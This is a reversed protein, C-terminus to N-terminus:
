RAINRYTSLVDAGVRGGLVDERHFEGPQQGVKQLPRLYCRHSRTLKLDFFCAPAVKVLQALKFILAKWQIGPRDPIHQADQAKWGDNPKFATM